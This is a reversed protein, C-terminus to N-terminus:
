SVSPVRCKNFRRSAMALEVEDKDSIDKGIADNLKKVMRWCVCGPAFLVNFLAPRLPLWWSACRAVPEAQLGPKNSPHRESRKPESSTLSGFLAWHRQLAGERRASTVGDLWAMPQYVSLQFVSLVGASLQYVGSL